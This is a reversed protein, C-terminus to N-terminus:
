AHDQLRHEAHMKNRNCTIQTRKKMRLTTRIKCMEKIQKRHRVHASTPSQSIPSLPGPLTPSPSHPTPTDAYFVGINVAFIRADAQAYVNADALIYETAHAPLAESKRSHLKAHAHTHANSDNADETEM